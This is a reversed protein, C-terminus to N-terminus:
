FRVSLYTYAGDFHWDAGLRAGSSKSSINGDVDLYNYAAGIAVNRTVEYELGAKAEILHGSYKKTKIFFVESGLKAILRPTINYAGRVGLTPLPATVARGESRGGNVEAVSADLRGVYAGVSPGIEMKDNQVIMYAYSLKYTTAKFSSNLRDDLQFTQDGFQIQGRLAVDGKRSFRFYSADLQHRQHAGLRVLADARFVNANRKFGLSDELDITTGTGLSASDLRLETDHLALLVGASVEVAPRQSRSTEQAALSTAVSSFCVACVVTSILSKM